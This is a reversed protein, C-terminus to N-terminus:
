ATFYFCESIKDIGPWAWALAVGGAHMTCVFVFTIADPSRLFVWVSIVPLLISRIFFDGLRGAGVWTAATLATISFSAIVLTASM